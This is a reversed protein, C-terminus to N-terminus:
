RGTEWPLAARWRAELGHRELRKIAGKCPTLVQRRDYALRRDVELHASVIGEPSSLQALRKLEEYSIM